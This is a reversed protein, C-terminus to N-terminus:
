FQESPELKKTTEKLVELLKESYGCKVLDYKSWLEAGRPIDSKLEQSRLIRFVEDKELIKSMVDMKGRLFSNLILEVKEEDPFKSYQGAKFLTYVKRVSSSMSFNWVDYRGEELEKHFLFHKQSTIKSKFKNYFKDRYGYTLIKIDENKSIYSNIYRTTSLKNIFPYMFISAEVGLLPTLFMTVENAEHFVEQATM